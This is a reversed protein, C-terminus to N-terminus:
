RLKRKTTLYMVRIQHALGIFMKDNPTAKVLTPIQIFSVWDYLRTLETIFWILNYYGWNHAYSHALFPNIVVHLCVLNTLGTQYTHIPSLGSWYSQKGSGARM